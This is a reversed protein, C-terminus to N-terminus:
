IQSTTVSHFSVLAKSPDESDRSIVFRVHFVIETLASAWECYIDSVSDVNNNLLDVFTDWDEPIVEDDLRAYDRLSLMKGDMDFADGGFGDGYESVLEAVEDWPIYCAYITDFFGNATSTERYFRIEESYFDKNRFDNMGSEDLYFVTDQYYPDRRNDRSKCIFDIETMREEFALTDSVFGNQVFKEPTMSLKINYLGFYSSYKETKGYKISLSTMTNKYLSSFTVSVKLIGDDASVASITATPDSAVKTQADIFNFSFLEAREEAEANNWAAALSDALSVPSINFDLTGKGKVVKVSGDFYTPRVVISQVQNLLAEVDKEVAALRNKISNIQTQLNTNAVAIKNAIRTDIQGSLQNIASQIAAEYSSKLEAKANELATKQEAISAKLASDSSAALSDILAQTQAITYYENLQENIWAKM